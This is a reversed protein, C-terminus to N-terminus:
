FDNNIIVNPQYTQLGLIHGNVLQVHKSGFLHSLNIYSLFDLCLKSCCKKVIYSSVAIM